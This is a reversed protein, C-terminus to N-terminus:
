HQAGHWGGEDGTAGAEDAPAQDLPEGAVAPADAGEGAGVAGGVGHADAAGLGHAAVEAVERRQDAPMSPASTVKWAAALTSSKPGQRSNTSALTSPVRLTRRAQRAAATARATCTLV